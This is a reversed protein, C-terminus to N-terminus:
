GHEASARHAARHLSNIDVPDSRDSPAVSAASDRNETKASRISEVVTKRGANKPGDAQYYYSQYGYSDNGRSQTMNLVCGLVRADVKALYSAALAVQHRSTSGYRAVLIAGDAHAALIVADTVPLLPPSDLLIVDFRKKLDSLLAVMSNSGLLESPNPPLSGSPLVTLGGRGWPQLVEDVTAQGALVNSLGIAGEIGLYEAVRPRRLDAEILLVSKGAEAFIVALNTATTSKGENPVSSTIVLTRSPRDVDIFELNTRLQRFAEARLSQAHHDIILPHTKATEDYAIVGLVASRSAHELGTPSRVSTDLVDRAVASGIGVILGILVAVGYNVIPRPEVPTPNLSPGSVLELRVSAGGAQTTNELDAVLKVFQTSISTAIQLSRAPVPDTVTVSLLVTNVDGTATIEKALQSATLPIKTEALVPKIVRDTTVLQVYSNVRNQGFTDGQAAVSLQNSPTQVFFTMRSAYQRPTTYTVYAAIGGAIVVAIPIMWWYKRLIKLYNMFNM